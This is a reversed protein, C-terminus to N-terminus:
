ASYALPKRYLPMKQGAQSGSGSSMGGQLGSQLGGQASGGNAFPNPNGSGNSGSSTDSQMKFPIYSNKANGATADAVSTGTDFSVMNAVAAAGQSVASPAQQWPAVNVRGDLVQDIRPAYTAAYSNQQQNGAASVVSAINQYFNSSLNIGYDAQSAAVQQAQNVGGAADAGSLALGGDQPQLQNLRAQVPNLGEPGAGVGDLGGLGSSAKAGFSFIGASKGLGGANLATQPDVGSHNPPPTKRPGNPNEVAYVDGFSFGPDNVKYTAAISIAASNPAGLSHGVANAKNTTARTSPSLAMSQVNGNGDTTVKIGMGVGPIRFDAQALLDTMNVDSISYLAAMQKFLNPIEPATAPASVKSIHGSVANNIGLLTTHAAASSTAKSVLRHNKDTGFAPYANPDFPSTSPAVNVQYAPSFRTAPITYSSNANLGNKGNVIPGGSYLPFFKLNPISSSM